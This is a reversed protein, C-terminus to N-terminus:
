TPSSFIFSYCPTDLHGIVSKKKQERRLAPTEFGGEERLSSNRFLTMLRWKRRPLPEHCKTIWQCKIECIWSIRSVRPKDSCRWVIVEFRLPPWFFLSEMARSNTLLGGIMNKSSGVLHTEYKAYCNQFLLWLNDSASAFLENVLGVIRVRRRQGCFIFFYVNKMKYACNIVAWWHAVIQNIECHAFNQSCVIAFSFLVSLLFTDLRTTFTM